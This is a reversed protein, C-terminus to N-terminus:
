PSAGEIKRSERSPLILFIAGFLSWFLGTTYVALSLLVIHEPPAGVSGFMALFLNERVGLGGPTIPLAALVTIIPFFTLYDVMRAPVQLARGLLYCASTLALLNGLSYLVARVMINQHKRYYFLADYSRRIWPGWQSKQELRRFFPWSEFLHRTFFVAIGLLGGILFFLMVAAAARNTPTRHFLRLRLAVFVCGFIVTTFLGIARDAIVTTVAATQRSPISRAVAVARAMDGGCAGLMFSNFFQGLFFQRFVQAFPIALGQANLLTRWRLIGCHLGAYTAALALIWITRGNPVSERVMAIMQREDIRYFVYALLVVAVAARVLAKLLAAIKTTM